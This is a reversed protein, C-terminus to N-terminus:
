KARRRLEDYRQLLDVVMSEEDMDYDYGYAELVAKDNARHAARLEAPMALEDYLDALSAEPFKARADLIAQAAASIKARQRESVEVFPFNNYVLTGSYRYDARLRGAVVRMWNMHVSSELMGFLFIDANPIVSCADGAIIDPTMFAMPVYRRRESSVRPVCIYNTTPQRIETFLTPNEAAKRTAAKTSTLRFERVAKVREYVLKMSRLENPPCDVLWLCYRMKNYLFEDAGIFRRIYKKAAPERQIFNEYDKAEIILNGGDTPQSGKIMPPVNCLPKARKEVYIDPGAILYGNIHDVERRSFTGDPNEEYIFPM